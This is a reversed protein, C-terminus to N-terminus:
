FSCFFSSFFWLSLYFCIVPLYGQLSIFCKKLIWTYTVWFSLSPIFTTSPLPALVCVSLKCALRWVSLCKGVTHWTSRQVSVLGSATPKNQQEYGESICGFCRSTRISVSVRCCYSLRQLYEHANESRNTLSMINKWTCHHWHKLQHSELSGAFPHSSFQLLLLPAMKFFAEGDSM